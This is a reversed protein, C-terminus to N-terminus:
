TYISRNTQLPPQLQESIWSCTGKCYSRAVNGMLFCHKNEERRSDLRTMCQKAWYCTSATIKQSEQVETVHPRAAKALEGPWNAVRFAGHLLGPSTELCNLSWTSPRLSHLRNIWAFGGVIFILDGQVIWGWIVASPLWKLCWCLATVSGLSARSVVRYALSDSLRPTSALFLSYDPLRCVSFIAPYCRLVVM